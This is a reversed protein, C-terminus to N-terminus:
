DHCTARNTILGADILEQAKRGYSGPLTWVLLSDVLFQWAAIQIEEDCTECEVAAMARIATMHVAQM